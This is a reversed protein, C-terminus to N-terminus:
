ALKKISLVTMYRCVVENCMLTCIHGHRNICCWNDDKFADMCDDFLSEAVEHIEFYKYECRIIDSKAASNFSIDAFSSARDDIDQLLVVSKDLRGVIVKNPWSHFVSIDDYGEM